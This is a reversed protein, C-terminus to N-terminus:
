ISGTPRSPITDLWFTDVFTYEIEDLRSCANSMMTGKKAFPVLFGSADRQPTNDLLAVDDQSNEKKVSHSGKTDDSVVTPVKTQLSVDEWFRDKLEPIRSNVTTQSIKDFM